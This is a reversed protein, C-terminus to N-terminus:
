LSDSNLRWEIASSLTDVAQYYQSRQFSQVDSFNFPEGTGCQIKSPARRKRQLQMDNLGLTKGDDTANDFIVDFQQRFFALEALIQKKRRIVEALNNMPRQIATVFADTLSFLRSAVTCQFYTETALMQKHLGRATDLADTPTKVDAQIEDLTQILHEYNCIVSSISTGRVTWKTPCLPRLSSKTM